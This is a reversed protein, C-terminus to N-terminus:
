GPYKQNQKWQFSDHHSAETFVPNHASSELGNM